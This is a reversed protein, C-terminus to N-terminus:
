FSIIFIILLAMNSLAAQSNTVLGVTVIQLTVEENFILDIHNWKSILISENKYKWYFYTKFIGHYSIAFTSLVVQMVFGNKIEWNLGVISKKLM